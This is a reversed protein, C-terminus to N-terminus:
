SYIFGDPELGDWGEELETCRDCCLSALLFELCKFRAGLQRM